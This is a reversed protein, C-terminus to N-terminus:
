AAKKVTVSALLRRCAEDAQEQTVQLERKPNQRPYLGATSTYVLYWHSSCREIQIWTQIAKHGYANPLYGGSTAIYTAGPRSAKTVGFATLEKEAQEAVNEIEEYSTFTHRKARGNAEELRAEILTANEPVIKIPKTM